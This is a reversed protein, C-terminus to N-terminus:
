YKAFFKRIKNDDKKIKLFYKVFSKFCIIVFNIQIIFYM